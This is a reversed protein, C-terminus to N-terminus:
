RSAMRSVPVPGTPAALQQIIWDVYRKEMREMLSFPGPRFYRSNVGRWNNVIIEKDALTTVHWLWTLEDVDYDKGEVADGRV